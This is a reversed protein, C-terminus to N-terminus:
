SIFLLNAISNFFQGLFVFRAFLKILYFQMKIKFPTQVNKKFM